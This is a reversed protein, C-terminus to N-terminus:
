TCSAYLNGDGDDKCMCQTCSVSNEARGHSGQYEQYWTDGANLGSPCECKPCDDCEPGTETTYLKSINITGLDM